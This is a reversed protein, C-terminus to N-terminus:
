SPPGSGGVEAVGAVRPAVEAHVAEVQDLLQEPLMSSTSASHRAEAAIGVEREVLPARQHAALAPEALELEGPVGLRHLALHDDVARAAHQPDVQERHEEALARVGSGFAASRSTLAYASEIRGSMSTGTPAHFNTRM